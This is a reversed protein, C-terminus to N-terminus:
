WRRKKQQQPPADMTPPLAPAAQVYRELEYSIVCSRAESKVEGSCNSRSFAEALQKARELHARWDDHTDYLAAFGTWPMMNQGFKQSGFIRTFQPEFFGLRASLTGTDAGRLEELFDIWLRNAEQCMAMIQTDGRGLRELLEQM